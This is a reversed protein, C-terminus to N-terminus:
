QQNTNLYDDIAQFYLILHSYPINYYDIYYIFPIIKAPPKPVLSRDLLLLFKLAVIVWVHCVLSINDLKKM